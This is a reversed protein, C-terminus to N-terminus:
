QTKIKIKYYINITLILIILNKKNYFIRQEVLWINLRPVEFRYNICIIIERTLYNNM